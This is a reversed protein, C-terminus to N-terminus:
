YRYTLELLYNRGDLRYYEYYRKNLINNVSLSIELHKLPRISVKSDLFLAPEYSGYVGDETDKNYADTYIKSFYRGILSATIKKIRATTGFNWMLEPIGTVKKGETLPDASNEVIKANTYTLNTWLKLWRYPTYSIQGEAGYTRGRGANVKEKTSGVIKSYILDKIDNYFLTLSTTTKNHFFHNTVGIEYTWVTEPKLFPNSKYTTGWSTWTRYLEYITPPRFAKGVSARLTTNELVEYVISLKPSIQSESNSGYYTETGPAGSYGNFVRWYDYRAGIYLLLPQIVRWQDQIFFAYSQSQGGCHFTMAGRGSFSRYFPVPYESTDSDDMRLSIGSVLLHSQSLPIVAKLEGSSADSTTSSLKGPSDNYFANNTGTELTYQSDTIVGGIHATLTIDELPKSILLSLIKSEKEGIGTYSIFDNPKFPAKLNNGAIAATTSNGFTGMYTHPYGYDYYFRGTIGSLVLQGGEPFLYKAKASIVRRNGGNDGKDGVVWYKPNGYPDKMLYGGSINGTGTTISKRVPSTPYGETSEGEYNLSLFLRQHIPSALSLATTWTDHSGYGAKLSFTFKKPTSTIINIVGAMADGGYLSSAPGRIIEIKEVNSIPLNAWAVAGTYADNLPEGDLLILCYKDGSFGRMRIAATTDMLGKSRKFFIGPITNLADDITEMRRSELERKTIISVSGPADKVREVSKTATVVTDELSYSPPKDEAYLLTSTLCFLFLFMVFANLIKKM